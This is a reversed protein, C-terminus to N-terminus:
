DLWDKKRTNQNVNKTLGILEELKNSIYEEDFQLHNELSYQNMKTLVYNKKEVGTYNKFKEADQIFNYLQESLILLEETSKRIRKNKSLKFILTLISIFFGLFTGLVSLIIELSM